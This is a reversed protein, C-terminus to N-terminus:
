RVQSQKSRQRFRELKGAISGDYVRNGIRVLVGGVVDSDVETHLRLQKDIAQGFQEAMQQKEEDTLSVATTITAEAIGRAENAAAIYQQTIDALETERGRDVLLKLLNGTEDTVKAAFSDILAKKSQTDMRPNLFMEDIKEDKFVQLVATLDDEIDDMLQRESAVEFLAHAYRKAAESM